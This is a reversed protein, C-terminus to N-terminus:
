KENKDLIIRELRELRMIIDQSIVNQLNIVEILMEVAKQEEKSVPM